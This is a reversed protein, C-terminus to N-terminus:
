IISGLKPIFRLLELLFALLAAIWDFSFFLYM